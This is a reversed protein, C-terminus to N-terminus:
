PLVITTDSVVSSVAFYGLAGASLNTLVNGKQIDFVSGRWETESLFTRLFEQHDDSLSYKRRLIITGAPFQVKEKEPSFAQNVDLSSLTYHFSRALSEELPTEEFGPLHGWSIWYEKISPENSDQFNISYLANSEDALQFSLPKLPGVPVMEASATFEKGQYNVYLQYTKNIVAQLTDSYYVGSGQPFEQFVIVQNDARVAVFAGSAPRPIENLVQITKSLKISHSKLENTLMGEVVIVDLAGHDINWDVPEECGLFLLLIVIHHIRWSM